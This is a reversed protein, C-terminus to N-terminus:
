RSKTEPAPGVAESSAESPVRNRENVEAYVHGLELLMGAARGPDFLRLYGINGKLGEVYAGVEFAPVRGCTLNHIGARIRARYQKRVTIINGLVLNNLVKRDKPGMSKIKRHSVRFGAKILTAIVPGIVSSASDGSFALDDVWSSYRIGNQECVARIEGDFGSLVLNALLPSTPAGQPLRGRCTTLGTLLYSITPSCNLIERFVARVQSPTISPFFNKIDITVLCRAGLHLRANDAM